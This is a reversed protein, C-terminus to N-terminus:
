AEGLDKLARLVADQAASREDLATKFNPHQQYFSQMESSQIAAARTRPL